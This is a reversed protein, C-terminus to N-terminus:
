CLLGRYTSISSPLFTHPVQGPYQATLSVVLSCATWLGHASHTSNDIQESEDDKYGKREVFVDYGGRRTSAISFDADLALWDLPAPNQVSKRM